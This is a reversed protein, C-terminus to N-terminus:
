ALKGSRERQQQRMGRLESRRVKGTAATRPLDEVLDIVDPVLDAPLQARLAAMLKTPLRARDSDPAPIVYLVLERRGNGNIQVSVADAVDPHALASDEIRTASVVEGALTTIVEGRRGAYWLYGDEDLRGVDGTLFRRGHFAQATLDPRNLYGLCLCPDDAAVSVLGYQGVKVQELTHEDLIKISHGPVPRGVTGPRHAFLRSCDAAVMAVETSGYYPHIVVGLRQELEVQVEPGLPEGAYYAVRLRELRRVESVNRMRKLVAPMLHACTVSQDALTTCLEDATLPQESVVVPRAYHWAPFIVPRLGGLSNWGLSAYFVDDTDPGLNTLFQFAPLTGLVFRHPLVVPKPPGTSGSTFVVFAPDDGQTVSKAVLDPGPDSDGSWGDRWASGNTIVAPINSLISAAITVTDDRVCARPAVSSIQDAVVDPEAAPSLPVVIAGLKLIALAAIAADPTNRLLVCVCDGRGVGVTALIGALVDSSRKLDAFTLTHVGDNSVDVAAVLNREAHQDCVHEAINCRDPLEWQFSERLIDYSSSATIREVPM